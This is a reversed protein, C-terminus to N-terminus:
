ATERMRYRSRKCQYIRGFMQESVARLIRDGPWNYGHGAAVRLLAAEASAWAAEAESSRSSPLWGRPKASWGILSMLLGALYRPDDEIDGPTM